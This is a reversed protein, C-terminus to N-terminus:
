TFKYYDDIFNNVDTLLNNDINFNNKIIENYLNELTNFDNNYSKDSLLLMAYSENIIEEKKKIKYRHEELNDEISLIKNKMDSISKENCTVEKQYFDNEKKRRKVVNFQIKLKNEM